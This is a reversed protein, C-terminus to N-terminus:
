RILLYIPTAQKPVVRAEVQEESVLKLYQKFQHHTAPNGVGSLDNWEGSRGAEIVISCLKGILNDVTKAGLRKPCNCFNFTKDNPYACQPCRVAATWGRPVVPLTQFLKFFSPFTSSFAHTISGYLCVVFTSM